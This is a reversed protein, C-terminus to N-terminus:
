EFLPVFFDLVGVIIRADEHLRLSFSRKESIDLLIDIPVPCASKTSINAVPRREESIVGHHEVKLPWHLCFDVFPVVLESYRPIVAEFFPAIEEQFVTQPILRSVIVYISMRVSKTESYLLVLSSIFKLKTM